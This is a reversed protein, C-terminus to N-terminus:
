HFDAEWVGIYIRDQENRQIIGELNGVNFTQSQQQRLYINELGQSATESTKNKLFGDLVDQLTELSTSAPVAIETQRLKNTKTDFLYGLDISDSVLDQYAYARSNQWYGKKRWTPEGLAAVIETESTGVPFVPLSLSHLQNEKKVLESPTLPIPLSPEIWELLTPSSISSYEAGFTSLIYDLVGSVIGMGIGMIGLIFLYNKILQNM